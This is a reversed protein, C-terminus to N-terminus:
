KFFFRRRRFKRNLMECKYVLSKQLLILRPHLRKQDVPERESSTRRWQNRHRRRRRREDNYKRYKKLKLGSCTRVAQLVLFTRAERDPKVMIIWIKFKILKPDEIYVCYIWSFHTNPVNDLQNFLRSLFWSAPCNSSACCHQIDPVPVPSLQGIGQHSTSFGTAHTDNPALCNVFVSFSFPLNLQHVIRHTGKKLM